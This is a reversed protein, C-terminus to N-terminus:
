RTFSVFNCWAVFVTAFHENNAHGVIYQPFVQHRVEATPSWHLVYVYIWFLSVCVDGKLRHFGLNELLKTVFNLVSYVFHLPASKLYLAVLGPGLRRTNVLITAVFTELRTPVTGVVCRISALLVVSNTEVTTTITTTITTAIAVAVLLM